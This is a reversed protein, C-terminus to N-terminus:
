FTGITRTKIDNKSCWTVIGNNDIMKARAEREIAVEEDDDLVDLVM